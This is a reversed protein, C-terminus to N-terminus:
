QNDNNNHIDSTFALVTTSGSLSKKPPDQKEEGKEEVPEEEKRQEAAARVLAVLIIEVSCGALPTDQWCVHVVQAMDAWVNERSRQALVGQAVEAVDVAVLRSRLAVIQDIADDFGAADVIMNWADFSPQLREALGDGM